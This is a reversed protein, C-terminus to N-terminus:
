FDGQWIPLSDDPMWEGINRLQWVQVEYYTLYLTAEVHLEKIDSVPCNFSISDFLGWTIEIGEVSGTETGGGLLEDLIQTALADAEYFATVLDAEANALAQESDANMYTIVAFITLCLVAFVLVVSASGVGAGNKSM